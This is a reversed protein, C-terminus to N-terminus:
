TLDQWELLFVTLITMIPEKKAKWLDETAKDGLLGDFSCHEHLQNFSHINFVLGTFGLETIGYNQIGTTVEKLPLRFM